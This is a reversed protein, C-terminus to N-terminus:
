LLAGQKAEALAERMSKDESDEWFGDYGYCGDPCLVRIYWNRDPHIKELHIQHERYTHWFEKEAM